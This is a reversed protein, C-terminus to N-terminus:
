NGGAASRRDVRLLRFGHMRAVIALLASWSAITGFVLLWPTFLVAAAVAVPLAVVSVTIVLKWHLAMVGATVAAVGLALGGSIGLIAVTDDWDWWWLAEGWDVPRAVAFLLAVAGTLVLLDWLRIQLPNAQTVGASGPRHVVAGTWRVVVCALLLTCVYTGSAILAYATGETEEILWSTGTVVAFGAILWSSRQLWPSKTGFCAWLALNNVISFISATIVLSLSSEFWDSLPYYSQDGVSFFRLVLAALVFIYAVGIHLLLAGSGDSVDSAVWSRYWLLFAAGTAVFALLTMRWDSTLRSALRHQDIHAQTQPRTPAIFTRLRTDRSATEASIEIQEGTAVDWAQWDGGGNLTLVVREDTSLALEALDDANTTAIRRGGQLDRFEIGYESISVLRNHRKSVAIYIPDDSLKSIRRFGHPGMEFVNAGRHRDVILHGNIVSTHWSSLEGTEIPEGVPVDWLTIGGNWGSGSALYRSNAAFGLLDVAGFHRAQFRGIEQTDADLVIVSGRDDGIAYRSGTSDVAVAQVVHPQRLRHLRKRTELDWIEVTPRIHDSSRREIASSVILQHGNSGVAM